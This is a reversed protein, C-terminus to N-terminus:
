AMIKKGEEDKSKEEYLSEECEDHINYEWQPWKSEEKKLWECETWWPQFNALQDPSIGKTAIDAPNCESPIYRFSCHSTRIEEIRNQIFRPLLRSQNQIWHLACRSNPIYRFSCHSTRIEEVRNQIFRPLLRSQNQIWHLACRSDSWLTIKANEFDLQKIVFKVARIEILIALLEAKPITM